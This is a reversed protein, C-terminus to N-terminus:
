KAKPVYLPPCRVFAEAAESDNGARQQAEAWSRAAAATHFDPIAGAWPIQLSLAFATLLFFRFVRMGETYGFVASRKQRKM